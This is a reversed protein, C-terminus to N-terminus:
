AFIAKYIFLKVKLVYKNIEKRRRACMENRM